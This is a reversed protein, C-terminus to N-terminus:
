KKALMEAESGPRSDYKLMSDNFFSSFFSFFENKMYSVEFDMLANLLPWSDVTWSVISLFNNFFFFSRLVGSCDEALIKWTRFLLLKVYRFFCWQLHEGYFKIVIKLEETTIIGFVVLILLYFFFTFEICVICWFLNFALEITSM